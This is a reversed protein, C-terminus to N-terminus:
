AVDPSWFKTFNSLSYELLWALFLAQFSQPSIVQYMSTTYRTEHFDSSPTSKVHFSGSTVGFPLRNSCYRNFPTIFTTLKASRPDLPIQYFGSNTSFYSLVKAAALQALIHEIMLLPHLERGVNENLRTLDVCNGVLGNKKQVPVHLM